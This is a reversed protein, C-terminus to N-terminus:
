LRKLTKLYQKEDSPVQRSEMIKQISKNYTFKDLECNNLFQMTKEKSTVYCMSITWAVAMNVYYTDLRKGNCAELVRDMYEENRYHNLLMVFAFRVEYPDESELYGSLLQYMEEPYVKAIKLSSCFSDNVSWNDIMPLFSGIQKKAEIWDTIHGIVFARLLNEEISNEGKRENQNALALYGLADGKSIRAALKRLLPLRIGWVRESAIEPILKASFQAYSQERGARVVSLFQEYEEQSWAKQAMQKLYCLGDKSAESRPMPEGNSILNDVKERKM